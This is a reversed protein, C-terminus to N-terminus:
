RMYFNSFKIFNNLKDVSPEKWLSNSVFVTHPRYVYSKTVSWKTLEIYMIKGLFLSSSM